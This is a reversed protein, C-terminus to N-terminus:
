KPYKNRQRRLEWLRLRIKDTLIGLIVAVFHPVYMIETKKVKARLSSTASFACACACCLQSINVVDIM